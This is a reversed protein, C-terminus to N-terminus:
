KGADIFPMISIYILALIGVLYFVFQGPNEKFSDLFTRQKGELKLREYEGRVTIFRKEQYEAILAKAVEAQEDHVLWIAPMSIGWNGGPTEYFELDHEALLARVEEAEDEAVNRLRFIQVAM